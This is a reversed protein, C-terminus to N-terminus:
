SRLQVVLFRLIWSIKFATKLDSRFFLNYKIQHSSLNLDNRSACFASPIATQSVGGTVVWTFLTHFRTSIAVLALNKPVPVCSPPDEGVKVSNDRGLVM